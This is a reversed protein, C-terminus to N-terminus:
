MAKRAHLKSCCYQVNDLLCGVVFLKALTSILTLPEPLRPLCSRGVRRTDFAQCQNSLESAAVLVSFLPMESNTTSAASAPSCGPHGQVQSAVSAGRSWLHHVELSRQVHLAM